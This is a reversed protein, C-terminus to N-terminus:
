NIKISSHEPEQPHLKELKVTLIGDVFKANRVEVDKGVKYKSSFDRRAIGRHTYERGKEKDSATKSSIVLYDDELKVSLSGKEYGSLAFEMFCTSPGGDLMRYINCLPFDPQSPVETAVPAMGMVELATNILDM